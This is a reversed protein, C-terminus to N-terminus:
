QAIGPQSLSDGLSIRPLKVRVIEYLEVATPHGPHARLEELIVQRQRTNRQFKQKAM